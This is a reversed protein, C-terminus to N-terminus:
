PFLATMKMLHSPLAIGNILAKLTPNSDLMDFVIKTKFDYFWFTKPYTHSIFFTNIFKFKKLDYLYLAWVCVSQLWYIILFTFFTIFNLSSIKMVKWNQSKYEILSKHKEINLFFFYIANFANYKHFRCFINQFKLKSDFFFILDYITKLIIQVWFLHSSGLISISIVGTFPM